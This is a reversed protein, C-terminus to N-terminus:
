SRKRFETEIMVILECQDILDKPGAHEVYEHIHEHVRMQPVMVLASVLALWLATAVLSLIASLAWRRRPKNPFPTGHVPQGCNLCMCSATQLEAQASLQSYQTTDDASLKFPLYSRFKKITEGM